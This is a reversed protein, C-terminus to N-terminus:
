SIRFCVPIQYSRWNQFSKTSSKWYKSSGVLSLKWRNEATRCPKCGHLNWRALFSVCMWSANCSRMRPLNWSHLRSDGSISYCKGWEAFEDPQEHLERCWSRTAPSGDLSNLGSSTGCQNQSKTQRTTNADKQIRSINLAKYEVSIRTTKSAVGQSHIQHCVAAKETRRLFKSQAYVNRWELRKHKNKTVDTKRCAVRVHWM